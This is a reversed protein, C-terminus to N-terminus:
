FVNFRHFGLQDFLSVADGALPIRGDSDIGVLCQFFQLTDGQRQVAPLRVVHGSEFILVALQRAANLGGAVIRALGTVDPLQAGVNELSGAVDGTRMTQIQVLDVALEAAPEDVAVLHLYFM